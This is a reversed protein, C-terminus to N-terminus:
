RPRRPSGLAGLLFTSRATSLRMMKLSGSPLTSPCEVADRQLVAAHRWPCVKTVPPLPQAVDDEGTLVVRLRERKVTVDQAELSRSEMCSGGCTTPRPSPSSGAHNRKRPTLGRWWEIVKEGNELPVPITCRM